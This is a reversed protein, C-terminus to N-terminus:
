IAMGLLLLYSYFRLAHDHQDLTPSIGITGVCACHLGM